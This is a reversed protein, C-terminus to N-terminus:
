PVTAQAVKQQWFTRAAEHHQLVEKLEDADSLKQPVRDIREHVWDLFFEASARSIRRPVDGVEVYYPATSAFRFTRPNDAIVRVLFWGSETFTVEAAIDQTQADACPASQVVKGNKVIEIQPVTERTTLTVQLAIRLPEGSPSQFVHGPLRDNARCVLLPGNTVFSRGARLGDWWTDWSLEDGTHVYVRNYGVPNPLVGSASGASPPVRLGCNLIHYYIEQTWFGNGRPPPLRGADRPRGWAENALMGARNMHNNAVGITVRPRLSLVGPTEIPRSPHADNEVHKGSSRPITSSVRPTQVSSSARVPHRGDDVGLLALWVPVDWWFPKEIDLHLDAKQARAREVFTMPSPYERAAGTIDIPRDMGFYLLAGGEREDEGEMLRYYRHGDFNVLLPEPLPRDSWADRNNWWTIVPGIHLDSSRMLQEIEAPERHIHLDGPWWGQASMDVIRELMVAIELTEGEALTVEGEAREWEPSREIAYSYKGPSLSVVREGDFALHDVRRPLEGEPAPRGAADRLHLRCPVPRGEGDNVRFTLSTDAIAPHIAVFALFLASTLARM